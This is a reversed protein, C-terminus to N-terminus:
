SSEVCVKQNDSLSDAPYYQKGSILGSFEYINNFVVGVSDEPYYVYLMESLVCTKSHEALTEWMRNSMGSGLIQNFFFFEILLYSDKLMKILYLPYHLHHM